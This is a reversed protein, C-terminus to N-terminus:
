QNDTVIHYDYSKLVKGKGDRIIKLKGNDDYEYYVSYGTPDTIRTVGVLPKYAYTTVIFNEEEDNRLQAEVDSPLADSYTTGIGYGLLINYTSNEVKAVIHRGNYGWFYCTTKGNNDTVQRPNGHTDYHSYIYNSRYEINPPTGGLTGKWVKSPTYHDEANSQQEYDIKMASIVNGKNTKIIETPYAPIYDLYSYMECIEDGKSNTRAVNSVRGYDNVVYKIINKYILSSDKNYLETDQQNQYVSNTRYLHNVAQCLYATYVNIPDESQYYGYSYSEHKVPHAMDEAYETKSRLRGGTFTSTVRMYENIESASNLDMKLSWNDFAYLQNDSIAEYAETPLGGDSFVGDASYFNYETISIPKIDDAFKRIEEVVRLYEIFSNQSFGINNLSSVNERDIIVGSSYQKGDKDILFVGQSSAQYKFYYGPHQLIRGSSKNSDNKQCYSFKRNQTQAGDKSYTDIQKIRLGGVNMNKAQHFATNQEYIFNSYGGTPYHVTKLMGMRTHTISPARLTHLKEAMKPLNALPPNKAYTENNNFYGYQDVKFTHNHEYQAMEDYYDMTYQGEDSPNINKLFHIPRTGTTKVYECACTKIPKEDTNNYVHVLALLSNFNYTFVIRARNEVIISDLLHEHVTNSVTFKPSPMNEPNQIQHEPGLEKGSIDSLVIKDINIVPTITTYDVQQKSYVFRVMEGKTSEIRTLKWTFNFGADTSSSIDSLTQCTIPHEFYYKTKNGTIIVFKSLSPQSNDMEFKIEFEGAPTNTNFVKIQRNPQLIFSGSYEMFRFHFIDPETEIGQRDENCNIWYPMYEQGAAGTYVFNLSDQPIQGFYNQAYGDIRVSRGYIWSGPIGDPYVMQDWKLTQNENVKWRWDFSEKLADDRIGRVERTITGGVNLYWGMGLVGTDTGPQFGNSAYDISVPIEFDSDKYTYVPISLGLTGTYHNINADGYKIMSWVDPSQPKFYGDSLVAHM